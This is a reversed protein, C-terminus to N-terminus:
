TVNYHLIVQNTNQLTMASISPLIIIHSTECHVFDVVIDAADESGNEM